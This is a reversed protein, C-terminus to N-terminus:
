AQIAGPPSASLAASDQAMREAQAPNALVQLALKASAIHRALQERLPGPQYCHGVQDIDIPLSRFREGGPKGSDESDKLQGMIETMAEANSPGKSGTPKSGTAKSGGSAAAEEAEASKAPGSASGAPEGQTESPSGSSSTDGSANGAVRLTEISSSPDTTGSVIALLDTLLVRNVSSPNFKWQALGGDSGADIKEYGLARM